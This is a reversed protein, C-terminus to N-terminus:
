WPVHSIPGARKLLFYSPTSLRAFGLEVYSWGLLLTPDGPRLAVIPDRMLRMPDVGGKGRAYDILLGGGVPRPSRGDLPVVEYPGFCLPAGRKMIPEYPGDVGRQVIRVNWGRVRGSEPDRYFTKKFTKWALREVWPPLGLAIGEYEAGEIAEVPVDHGAALLAALGRADLTLVEDRSPPTV